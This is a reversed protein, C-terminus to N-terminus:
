SRTKAPRRARTRDPKQRRVPLLSLYRQKRAPKMPLAPPMRSRRSKEAEIGKLEVETLEGLKEKAM